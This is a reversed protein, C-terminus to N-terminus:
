GAQRQPPLQDTYYGTLEQAIETGVIEELEKL